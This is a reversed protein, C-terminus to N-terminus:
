PSPQTRACQSLQNEELRNNLGALQHLRCPETRSKQTEALNLFQTRTKISIATRHTIELRRLNGFERKPVTTGM